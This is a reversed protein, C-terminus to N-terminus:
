APQSKPLSSQDSYYKYNKLEKKTMLCKNLAEKIKKVKLNTGIFVLEQRRDGHPEQFKSMIVEYDESGEEVGWQEKPIITYWPMVPAITSIRGSQAFGIMFSDHESLWMFGKARLINGYESLMHQYKPDVSVKQRQDKPIAEWENAFHLISSVWLAIRAPHFPVRSRYVFSSVGYEDAESHAGKGSAIDEKIRRIEQIWGPSKIAKSMDFVNTNLIEKLDIKSFETEIIKAEPNLSRVLTKTEALQEESTVLDTKNLLIVNAFEVQEMLLNSISKEGEKLGEPTSSDLGDQYNDAFQRLTTMQALFMHADIVTVCTDLRAQTWLMQSEDEALQETEPDFVFSQAVAQPEAIGTSEILVYDFKNKSAKIRAIERILDGRLTCCICGNQLSIIEREAQVVVQDQPTSQQVYAADINLEAMDNVIVAVKMKHEASELIHKLLTTKGSGLFGSLVTVPIPTGSVIKETEKSEEVAAATDNDGDDTIEEILTITSSKTLTHEVETALNTPLPVSGLSADSMISQLQFIFLHHLNIFSFLKLWSLIRIAGFYAELENSLSIEHEKGKEFIREPSTERNHLYPYVDFYAKVFYKKNESKCLYIHFTSLKFSWLKSLAKKEVLLYRYM